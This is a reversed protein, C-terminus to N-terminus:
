RHPAARYTGIDVSVAIYIINQPRFMICIQIWISLCGGPNCPNWSIQSEPLNLLGGPGYISIILTLLNLTNFRIWGFFENIEANFILKYPFENLFVYTGHNYSKCGYRKMRTIVIFYKFTTISKLRFQLLILM